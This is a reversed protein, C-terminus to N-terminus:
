PLGRNNKERGVSKEPGPKQLTIGGGRKPRAAEQRALGKGKKKRLYLEGKGYESRGATIATKTKELPL